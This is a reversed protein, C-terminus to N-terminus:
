VRESNRDSNLAVSLYSEAGFKISPSKKNVPNFGRLDDGTLDPFVLEEGAGAAVIKFPTHLEWMKILIQFTQDEM